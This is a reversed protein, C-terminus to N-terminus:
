KKNKRILEINIIKNIITKFEQKDPYWIDIKFKGNGWNGKLWEYGEPSQNHIKSLYHSNTYTEHFWEETQKNNFLLWWNKDLKDFNLYKYVYDFQEQAYNLEANDDYSHFNNYKFIVIKM